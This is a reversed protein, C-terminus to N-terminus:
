CGFPLHVLYQKVTRVTPGFLKGNDFTDISICGLDATKPDLGLRTTARIDSWHKGKDEAEWGIQGTEWRM